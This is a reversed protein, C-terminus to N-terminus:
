SRTRRRTVCLDRGADHMAERDTGDRPDLM